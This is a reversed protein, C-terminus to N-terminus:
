KSITVRSELILPHPQIVTHHVVSVPLRVEGHYLVATHEDLRITSQPTEASADSVPGEDALCGFTLLIIILQM